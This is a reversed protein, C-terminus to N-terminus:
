GCFLRTLGLSRILRSTSIERPQFIGLDEALALSGLAWLYLLGYFM